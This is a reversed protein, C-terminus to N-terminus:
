KVKNKECLDGWPRGSFGYRRVEKGCHDCKWVDYFGTSDELTVVNKKSWDHPGYADPDLDVATVNILTEKGTDEDIIRYRVNFREAVRKLFRKASSKHKWERIENDENFFWDDSGVDGRLRWYSRMVRNKRDYWAKPSRALYVDSISGLM